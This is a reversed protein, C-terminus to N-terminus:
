SGTSETKRNSVKLWTFPQCFGSLIFCAAKATQCHRKLITASGGLALKLRFELSLRYLAFFRLNPSFLKTSSKALFCHFTLLCRQSNHKVNKAMYRKVSFLVVFSITKHIAEQPTLFRIRRLIYWLRYVLERFSESSYRYHKQSVAAYHLMCLKLGCHSRYQCPGRCQFCDHRWNKAHSSKRYIRHFM